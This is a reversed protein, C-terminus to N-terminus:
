RSSAIRTSPRSRARTGKSTGRYAELTEIRKVLMHRAIRRRLTTKKYAGFDAGSGKALLAFIKNLSAKDEEERAAAPASESLAGPEGAGMYPHRGLRTLDQAIGEPPLVFDVGGAAIASRPMGDFQASIPDQAFAIGREAKIAKLGLTGDTATGSLVVGIGQSGQV